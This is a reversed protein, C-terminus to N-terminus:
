EHRNGEWDSDAYWHHQPGYKSLVTESRVLGRERLWKLSRSTRKRSVTRPGGPTGYIEVAIEMATCGPHDQVYQRVRGRLRLAQAMWDAVARPEDQTGM